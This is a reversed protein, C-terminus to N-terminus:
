EEEQKGAIRVEIQYAAERRLAVLSGELRYVRPDGGLGSYAPTVHAGPIFGLDMLEAASANM